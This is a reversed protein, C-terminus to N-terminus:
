GRGDGDAPRRVATRRGASGDTARPAKPAPPAPAPAPAPPPPLPPASSVFFFFDRAYEEGGLVPSVALALLLLAPLAYRM